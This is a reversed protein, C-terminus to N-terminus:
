TKFCNGKFNRKVTVFTNVLATFPAVVTRRLVRPRQDTRKVIMGVFALLRISWRSGIQRMSSCRLMLQSFYNRSWIM